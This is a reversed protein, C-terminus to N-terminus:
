FKELIQHEAAQMMRYQVEVLPMENVAEGIRCVGIEKWFTRRGSM